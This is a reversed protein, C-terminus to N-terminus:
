IDERDSKASFLLSMIIYNTQKKQKKKPFIIIISYKKKIILFYFILDVTKNLQYVPHFVIKKKIKM